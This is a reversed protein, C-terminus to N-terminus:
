EQLVPANEATMPGRQKYFDYRALITRVYHATSPFDISDEFVQANLQPNKQSAVRVWRDVRSHGANYEALAFPLADEQSNWRQMAKGLYWSGIELNIKPDFLQDPEFSPVANAAAWERAAIPSIQMLGREGNKGVMDTQFRSERWVVAKVLRPDLKHETAVKTILADFRHYDGWNKIERVVYLPDKSRVILYSVAAVGSLVIVLALRFLFKAAAPMRTFVNQSRESKSVM